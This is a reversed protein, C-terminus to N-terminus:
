RPTGTVGTYPIKLSVKMWTFGKTADCSFEVM